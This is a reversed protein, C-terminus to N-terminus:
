TKKNDIKRLVEVGLSTISFNYKRDINPDTSSIIRKILLGLGELILVMKYLEEDALSPIDSHNRYHRLVYILYSKNRSFRNLKRITKEILASPTDVIITSM